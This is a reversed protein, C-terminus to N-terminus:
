NLPFHNEIQNKITSKFEDDNESDINLFYFPKILISSNPQSKHVEKNDDLILTNENTYNYPKLMDFIMKLKKSSNDYFKKSLSCHYSFLIFDLKRNPKKLIIKDVIFLAYDKSAATWVAVNYNEFLWDLFSQLYPREFIIYYGDIDYIPFKKAKQEIGKEGFPFQDLVEASILTQDLDLIVNYKKKM